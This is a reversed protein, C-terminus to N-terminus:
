RAVTLRRVARRGEAEVVVLYVGPALGATRVSAEASGAAQQMRHEAIRRGLVDVLTVGVPGERSLSYPVTVSGRVPNPYPRGVTFVEPEEEGDDPEPDPAAPFPNPPAQDTYFRVVTGAEPTTGDGAYDAFALTAVLANGFPRVFEPSGTADRVGYCFDAYFLEYECTGGPTAEDTYAVGPGGAARAAAAFLAYGGERDPRYLFIRDTAPYAAGPDLAGLPGSGDVELAEGFHDSWDFGPPFVVDGAGDVVSALLVPILRVDPEGPDRGAAYAEFPVRAVFSPGDAGQGNLRGWYVGFCEPEAGSCADTFRLEVDHEFAGEVGHAYARGLASPQGSFAGNQIPGVFYDAAGDPDLFVTNGFGLRCGEDPVACADAGSAAATEAIGVGRMAFADDGTVYVALARPASSPSLAAPAAYARVRWRVEEDCVTTCYSGSEVITPGYGLSTSDLTVTHFPADFDFDPGRVLDVTYGTAGPVATWTLRAVEDVFVASDAPALVEPATLLDASFPPPLPRGEYWARLADAADRLAAVSILHHTADAYVVGFTVTRSEGAPLDFPGVANAMDRLDPFMPEPGDPVYYRESWFTPAIPDGPFIFRTVPASDGPPGFGLWYEIFPECDQRLGQMWCYAGGEISGTNPGNEPYYANASLPDSLAVTGAAFTKPHGGARMPTSYTYGLHQTTDTGVRAIDGTAWWQAARLDRIPQSSRNVVEYRYVTARDVRADGTRPAIALARVEVGLPGSGSSEHVNGVDNMVWFAAEAGGGLDPRDGGALDYNGPVGDGDLVPAGLAAPWDALDPTAVGGDEYAAVDARSVTYIRDYASCDDPNVPRGDAGLPGPWFERERWRSSSVRVEEGVRGGLWFSSAIFPANGDVVYGWQTGGGVFLNGGNFLTATVENGDLVAEATGPACSGPAPQALVPPGLLSSALLSALALPRCM